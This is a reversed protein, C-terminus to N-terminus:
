PESSLPDCESAFRDELLAVSNCGDGILSRDAALNLELRLGADAPALSIAGALAESRKTAATLRLRSELSGGCSLEITYFAVCASVKAQLQDLVAARSVEDAVGCRSFGVAMGLAIASRYRRSGSTVDVHRGAFAAVAERV